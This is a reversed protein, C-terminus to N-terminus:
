IQQLIDYRHILLLFHVVDLYRLEHRFHNLFKVDM